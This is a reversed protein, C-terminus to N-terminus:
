SLFCLIVHVKLKHITLKNEFWYVMCKKTWLSRGLTSTESCSEIEFVFLLHFNM